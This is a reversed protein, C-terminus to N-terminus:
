REARAAKEISRAGPLVLALSTELSVSLEQAAADDLWRDLATRFAVMVVGLLLRAEPREPATGLRVCVQTVMSQEWEMLAGASSALVDPAQRVTMGAAVFLERRQEIHEVAIGLTARLSTTVPEAAPRADFSSRMVDLVEILPAALVDEKSPFYRFFTRSSMSVDACIDEVTVAAYGREAFKRLAVEVLARRTDSKHQARLGGAPSPVAPVAPGASPTM